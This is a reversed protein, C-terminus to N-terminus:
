QRGELERLVAGLMENIVTLVGERKQELEKIETPYTKLISIFLQNYSEIM